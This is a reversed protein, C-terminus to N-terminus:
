EMLIELRGPQETNFCTNCSDHKRSRVKMLVNICKTKGAGSPGLTMFGHRVLQTEYLQILKLTWPPHHILGSAAVQSEIASEIDPYGVKKLVMGLPLVFNTVIVLVIASCCGRFRHM